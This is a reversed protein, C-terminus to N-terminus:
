KNESNILQKLYICKDKITKNYPQKQASLMNIHIYNMDNQSM